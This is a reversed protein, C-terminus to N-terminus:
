PGKSKPPSIAGKTQVDISIQIRPLQPFQKYCRDELEFLPYVHYKMAHEELKRVRPDVRSFKTTIHAASWTVDQCIYSGITEFDCANHDLCVEIKGLMGVYDSIPEFLKMEDVTTFGVGEPTFEQQSKDGYEVLANFSSQIEPRQYENVITMSRDFRQMYLTDSNFWTQYVAFGIGLVVAFTQLVGSITQIEVSYKKLM